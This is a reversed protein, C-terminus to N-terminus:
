FEVVVLHAAPDAFLENFDRSLKELIQNDQMDENFQKNSAGLGKIVLIEKEQNLSLDCTLGYQDKNKDGWQLVLSVRPFFGDKGALDEDNVQDPDLEFVEPKLDGRKLRKESIEQLVPSVKSDVIQKLRKNNDRLWQRKKEANLHQLIVKWDDNFSEHSRVLAM